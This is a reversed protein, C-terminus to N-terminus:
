WRQLLVRAALATHDYILLDPRERMMASDVKSLTALAIRCYITEHLTRANMAHRGYELVEAGQMRVREALASTIAYTVRHGRRVLVQILPLTPNVCAAIPTGVYLIHANKM